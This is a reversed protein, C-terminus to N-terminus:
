RLRYLILTIWLGFSKNNNYLFLSLPIEALVFVVMRVCSPMWQYPMRKRQREWRFERKRKKPMNTVNSGTSIIFEDPLDKKGKVLVIIGITCCIQTMDVTALSILLTQSLSMIWVTWGRNNELYSLEM